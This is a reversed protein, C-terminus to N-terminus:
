ALAGLRDLVVNMDVPKGQATLERLVNRVEERSFGMVAIDDIVREVPVVSGQQAHQSPLHQVHQMQPRVPPPPPMHHSAPISLDQHPARRPPRQEPPPPPVYPRVPPPPPHPMSSQLRADLLKMRVENERMLAQLDNRLAEVDDITSKSASPSPDTGNESEAERPREETAEGENQKEDNEEKREPAEVRAEVLEKLLAVEEGLAQQKSEISELTSLVHSLRQETTLRVREVLPTLTEKVIRGVVREVVFSIDDATLAQPTTAHPAAPPPNSSRSPERNSTKSDSLSAFPDNAENPESAKNAEM